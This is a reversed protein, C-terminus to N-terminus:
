HVNHLLAWLVFGIGVIFVIPLLLAVVMFRWGIKKLRQATASDKRTFAIILVVLGVAFILLTLM